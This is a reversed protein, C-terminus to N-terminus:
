VTIRASSPGTLRRSISSLEQHLLAFPRILPEVVESVLLEDFRQALWASEDATATEASARRGRRIERVCRAYMISLIIFYAVGAFAVGTLLNAAGLARVVQLLGGLLELKGGAGVLRLMGEALPQVLPFWILIGWLLARAVVSPHRYGQMLVAVLEDDLDCVLAATRRALNTAAEAAAPMSDTARFRRALKPHAGRVRDQYEQVRDELSRGHVALMDDSLESATWRTGAVRAGVRRVLWRLPWFVTPLIPWREVRDALLEDALETESRLGARLRRAVIQRVDPGFAEDLLAAHGELDCARDLSRLWDDLQYHRRLLAANWDTEVRQNAQKISRVRGRDLPALVAGRLRLLEEALAEGIARVAPWDPRNATWDPDDWRRGVLEVFAAATPAEAALLHLQRTEYPCGSTQILREAWARQHTLFAASLRGIYAEDGLLEDVKNLVCYTNHADKFVTRLLATWERDAIKRPTVVWVVRDLLPLLSRVIELHQPLDSDFDPLDVLVLNRIADADHEVATLKRDSLDSAEIRERFAAAAAAHIYAVPRSTGEGVEEQGCSIPRGALANILTSKGVNKGGLIGCVVLDDDMASEAGKALVAPASGTLVALRANIADLGDDALGVASAAATGIGSAATIGIGSAALRDARDRDNATASRAAAEVNEAAHAPSGIPADTPM